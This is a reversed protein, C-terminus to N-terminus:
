QLRREIGERVEVGSQRRAPRPLTRVVTPFASWPAQQRVPGARCRTPSRALPPAPRRSPPPARQQEEARRPPTADQRPRKKLLAKAVPRVMAYSPLSPPELPSTGAARPESAEALHMRSTGSTPLPGRIGDTLEQLDNKELFESLRALCRLHGAIAQIIPRETDTPPSVLPLLLREQAVSARTRRGALFRLALVVDIEGADQALTAVAATVVETPVPQSLHLDGLSPLVPDRHAETQFLRGSVPMAKATPKTGSTGLTASPCFPRAETLTAVGGGDSLTAALFRVSRAASAPVAAAAAAARAPVPAM